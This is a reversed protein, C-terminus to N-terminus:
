KMLNIAEVQLLEIKNKYKNISQEIIDSLNLYLEDEEKDSEKDILLVDYAYDSQSVLKNLEYLSNLITNLKSAQSITALLKTKNIENM